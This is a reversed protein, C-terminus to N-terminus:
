FDLAIRPRGSPGTRAFREVTALTRELRAVHAVADGPNVMPITTTGLVVGTADARLAVVERGFPNTISGVPEGEYVLEGPRVLLDLIGGREARIWFARRVVVRFRPPRPPVDLMGLEALANYVGFIGKRVERRQFKFTEGAEYAITPVSAATAAHRLTSKRGPFDFVFEAGFAKALRRVSPQAMDARVHPLNSRGVAATHFDIGYDAQGVIERFITAAVRYSSAGRPNGPFCRNLDRRDPLYRSHHLFGFRNVVPVCILSGRIKDHSLGLMVQRVIEIGNLEDGHIAAALFVTPGPEQGRIVTVPINVPQSTYFESVKLLIQQTGGPEVTRGGVRIAKRGRPV